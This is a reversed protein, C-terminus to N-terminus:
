PIPRAAREAAEAALAAYDAAGRSNPAYTFIDQGFGPAEALAVNERIRAAYALGPFHEDLRAAVERSLRRRTDFRTLLIGALALDPNIRSRVARLTDLLAALGTLALFEAQMPALAETAAGLACVTLLGLNPPCDIVAVDYGPLKELVRRLLGERGPTGSLRSEIGALALSGPVLDPGFGARVVDQPAAEGTLAGFLGGGKQAPADCGMATTLHAQPDADVLLVRMGLRALGAGLNHATTTKGVGGKQNIVALTRM